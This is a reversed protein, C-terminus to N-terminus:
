HPHTDLTGTYLVTQAVDRLKINRNQSTVRLRDFAQEQTLGFQHMLIGTAAGIDRNTDLAETLQRITERAAQLQKRAIQYQGDVTPSGDDGPGIGTPGSGQEQVATM